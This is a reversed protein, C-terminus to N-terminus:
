AKRAGVTAVLATSFSDAGALSGAVAFRRLDDLDSVTSSELSATGSGTSALLFGSVARSSLGLVSASPPDAVAGSGSAMSALFFIRSSLRALLSALRALLSPGLAVASAMLRNFESFALIGLLEPLFPDWGAPVYEVIQRGLQEIIQPEVRREVVPGLRLLIRIERIAQDDDVMGVARGSAPRADLVSVLDDAIKALGHSVHAFEFGQLFQSLTEAGFPDFHNDLPIVPDM